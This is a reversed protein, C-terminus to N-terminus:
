CRAGGEIQVEARRDRPVAAPTAIKRIGGTPDDRSTNDVIYRQRFQGVTEGDDSGAHFNKRSKCNFSAGLTRKPDNASMEAGRWWGMGAEARFRLNSLVTTM